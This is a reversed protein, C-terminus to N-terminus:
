KNIKDIKDNLHSARIRMNNLARKQIETLESDNIGTLLGQAKEMEVVPIESAKDEILGDIGDFIKEVKERQERFAIGDM